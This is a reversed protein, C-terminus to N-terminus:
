GVRLRSNRITLRRPPVPVAVIRMVCRISSISSIPSRIVTIREPTVTPVSARPCHLGSVSTRIIVPESWRTSRCSRAACSRDASAGTTSSTRSRTSRSPAAGIAAVTQAPSTMPM